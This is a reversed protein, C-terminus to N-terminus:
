AQPSSTSLGSGCWPRPATTAYANLGTNVGFAARICWSEEDVVRYGDWLAELPGFLRANRTAKEFEPEYQWPRKAMLTTPDLLSSRAQQTALSKAEVLDLVYRQEHASLKAKTATGTLVVRSDVFMKHSWGPITQSLFTAVKKAKMAVGDVPSRGRSRGRILWQDGNATLEGNWDKIELLLVRDDMVAM